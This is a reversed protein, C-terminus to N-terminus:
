VQVSTAARFRPPSPAEARADKGVERPIDHLADRHRVTACPPQPLPARRPPRRTARERVCRPELAVDSTAHPQRHHKDSAYGVTCAPTLRARAAEGGGDGRGDGLARARRRTPSERRGRRRGFGVVVRRLSDADLHGRHEHSGARVGLVDPDRARDNQQAPARLTGHAHLARAPLGRQRERAEADVLPAGRERRPAAFSATTEEFGRSVGAASGDARVERQPTAVAHLRVGRDHDRAHWKEIAANELAARQHKAARGLRRERPARNAAHAARPAAHGVVADRLHAVRADHLFVARIAQAQFPVPERAHVCPRRFGQSATEFVGWSATKVVGSEGPTTTTLSPSPEVRASAPLPARARKQRPRVRRSAGPASVCVCRCPSATSPFHSSAHPTSCHTSAIPYSPHRIPSSSERKKKVLYTTRFSARAETERRVEPEVRAGRLRQRPRPRSRSRFAGTRTKPKGSAWATFDTTKWATGGRTRRRSISSRSRTRSSATRGAAADRRVAGRRGREPEVDLEDRTCARLHVLLREHVGRLRHWRGM